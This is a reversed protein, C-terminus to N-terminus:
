SDKWAVLQVPVSARTSPKFCSNRWADFDVGDVYFKSSHLLSIPEAVSLSESGPLVFNCTCAKGGKSATNESHVIQLTQDIPGISYISHIEAGVRWIMPSELPRGTGRDESLEDM